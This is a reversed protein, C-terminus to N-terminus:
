AGSQFREALALEASRGLAARMAEWRAPRALEREVVRRAPGDLGLDFPALVRALEAPSRAERVRAVVEHAGPARALSKGATGLLGMIHRPDVHADDM